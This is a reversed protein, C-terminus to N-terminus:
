GAKSSGPPSLSVIKLDALNEPCKIKGQLYAMIEAAAMQWSYAIICYYGQHCLKNMFIGQNPSVRRGLVKMEIFMGGFGGCCVPLFLDPVGSRLGESKLWQADRWGGRLRAGNPISFITGLQPVRQSKVAAWQILAKQEEHERYAM